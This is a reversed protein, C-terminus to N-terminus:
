KLRKVVAHCSRNREKKCFSWRKKGGSWLLLWLCVLGLTVNGGRVLASGACVLFVLVCVREAGWRLGEAMRDPCLLHLLSGLMRGGDLEGVPLLNFAALALNVGAFRQFAPVPCCFYALVLNVLPGAAAAFLEQGYSLGGDMEMRAGFATVRVRRVQVGVRYLAALHGLEHLICALLSQWMLGSPDRYLLWACLLLCGESAELRGVKMRGAIRCVLGSRGSTRRM